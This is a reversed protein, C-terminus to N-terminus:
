SGRFSELDLDFRQALRRVQSRSTALERAIASLNGKHKKMLETLRAKEDAESDPDGTSKAAQPAVDAAGGARVSEPLHATAIQDGDAVALAVRLAQELERVNMPWAHEFLARAASTHICLKEAREPDLRKLLASILLGLDERRKRLPPVTVSFGALRSFLDARFLGDDVLLGVDRHTATIVRLDVKTPHADGVSRVEREQLVRLLAVQAQEPLEAVEDLFLTGKDSARVLGPKDQTAGSFSGKKHGFLESEVLTPAIAGCNVAVFAGKRGSSEHVGRAVLEKGTGTEGSIMVSVDAGAVRRLTAFQTELPACMTTFASPGSKPARSLSPLQEAIVLIERYVFFTSGAEVLDGDKLAVRTVQLGNVRTGNKSRQDELVWHTRQWQLTVHCGSMRKDPVDLRLRRNAKDYRSDRSTARGIEVCKMESSLAFREPQIHPRLCELALVFFRAVTDDGATGGLTGELTSTEIM